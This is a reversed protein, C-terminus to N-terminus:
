GEVGSGAYKKALGDEGIMISKKNKEVQLDLDEAEEASALGDEMAASVCCGGLLLLEEGFTGPLV